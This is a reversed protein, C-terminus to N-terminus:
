LYRRVVTMVAAPSLDALSTDPGAGGPPTIVTVHDGLPAWVRPDTPGFLAVVRRAGAAAALHTIGSDGGLYVRTLSLLRAVRELPENAWVEQEQAAALGHIYPLLPAEAPGALWVM